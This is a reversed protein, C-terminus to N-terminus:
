NGVACGGCGGFEVHGVGGGGGCWGGGSECVCGGGGGDGGVDGAGVGRAGVRVAVAEGRLVGPPLRRYDPAFGEPAEGDRGEAEEDRDVAEVNHRPARHNEEQEEVGRGGHAVRRAVVLVSRRPLDPNLDVRLDQVSQETDRTEPQNGPPEAIEVVEHLPPHVLAVVRMADERPQVAPPVAQRPRLIQRVIHRRRRHIVLLMRLCTIARRRVARHLDLLQLRVGRDGQGHRAHRLRRQRAHPRLRTPTPTQIKHNPHIQPVRQNLSRQGPTHPSQISKIPGAPHRAQENRQPAQRTNERSNHHEDLPLFHLLCLPNRDMLIIHQLTHLLKLVPLVLLILLHDLLLLTMLPMHGPRLLNLPMHPKGPM